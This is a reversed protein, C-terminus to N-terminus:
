LYLYMNDNNLLTINFLLSLFEQNGSQIQTLAYYLTNCSNTVQINNYIKNRILKINEEENFFSVFIEKLINHLITIYDSQNYPKIRSIFKITIQPQPEYSIQEIDCYYKIKEMFYQATTPYIYTNAFRRFERVAVIDANNM